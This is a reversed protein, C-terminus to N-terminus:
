RLIEMADELNDVVFVECGHDRMEQHVLLQHAEPEEGFKKLEVFIIRGRRAGIRDTVGAYGPSEFKMWLWGRKEAYKRIDQELERELPDVKKKKTQWRMKTRMKTLM